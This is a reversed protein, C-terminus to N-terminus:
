LWSMQSRYAVRVTWTYIQPFLERVPGELRAAIEAGAEELRKPEFECSMAEIFLHLVVWARGRALVKVRCAAVRTLPAPEGLAKSVRRCLDGILAELTSPDDIVVESGAIDITFDTLVDYCGTPLTTSRDVSSEWM